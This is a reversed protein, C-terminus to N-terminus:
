LESLQKDIWRIKWTTAFASIESLSADLATWIGNDNCKDFHNAWAVDAEKRLTKIINKDTM